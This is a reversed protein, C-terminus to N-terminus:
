DLIDAAAVGLALSDGPLSSPAGQGEMAGEAVKHM